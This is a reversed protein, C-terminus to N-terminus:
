QFDRSLSRKIFHGGDNIRRWTQIQAIRARFGPAVCVCVCVCVCVYRKADIKRVTRKSQGEVGM